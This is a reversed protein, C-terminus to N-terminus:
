DEVAGSRSTKRVIERMREVGLLNREIARRHAAYAREVVDDSVGSGSAIISIISALSEGEEDGIKRYRAEVASALSRDRDIKEARRKM